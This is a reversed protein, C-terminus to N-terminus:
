AKLAVMYYLEKVKVGFPVSEKRSEQLNAQQKKEEEIKLGM